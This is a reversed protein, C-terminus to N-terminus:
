KINRSVTSQNIQLTGAIMFQEYGLADYVLCYRKSRNRIRKIENLADIYNCVTEEFDASNGMAGSVLSSNFKQSSVESLESM